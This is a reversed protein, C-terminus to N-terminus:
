DRNLSMQGNAKDFLSDTEKQTAVSFHNDTLSIM